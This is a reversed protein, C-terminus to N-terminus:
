HNGSFGRRGRRQWDNCDDSRKEDSDTRGGCSARNARNKAALVRLLNNTNSAEYGNNMKVTLVEWIKRTSAQNTIAILFKEKNLSKNLIAFHSELYSGKVYFTADKCVDSFFHAIDENSMGHNSIVKSDRLLQVDNATHILYRYGMFTAYATIHGDGQGRCNGFVELFRSFFHFALDALSLTGKPVNATEFLDELVLYPVQNELWLLDRMVSALVYSNKLSPDIQIVGAMQHLFQIIFRGDLAMMKVLDPGSFRDTSESYCKRIIEVKPALTDILDELGVGHPQTQDLMSQLYRWKHEQLMGLQVEGYHYPGISVICPRCAEANGGAFHGPCESSAVDAKTQNELQLLDRAVSYLVYSNNLPPDMRRDRAMVGAIQRLFQIIFCGDVVMMKVLDPGNFYETSESYCQRIMEVKLAVTNILDELGVSHQTQDLMTHLYRWKHKQLMQLQQEGHHYPGISVIRPRCAKAIGGGIAEPTRFITCTSGGPSENLCQLAAVIDQSMDYALEQKMLKIGHEEATAQRGGRNNDM